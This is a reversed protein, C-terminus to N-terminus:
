FFFCNLIDMFLLSTAVMHHGYRALGGLSIFTFNIFGQQNSSRMRMRAGGSSVM